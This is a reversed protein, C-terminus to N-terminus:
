GDVELVSIESADFGTRRRICDDIIVEPVACILPIKLELLTSPPFLPLLSIRPPVHDGEEQHAPMAPLM